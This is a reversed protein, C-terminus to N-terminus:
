LNPACHSWLGPPLNCTPPATGAEQGKVEADGGEVVGAGAAM